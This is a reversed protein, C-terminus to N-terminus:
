AKPCLVIDDKPPHMDTMLLGDHIFIEEEHQNNMACDTM